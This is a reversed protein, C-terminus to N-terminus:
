TMPPAPLYTAHHWRQFPGVLAKCSGFEVATTHGKRPINRARGNCVRGKGNTCLDTGGTIAKFVENNKLVIVLEHEGIGISELAAFDIKDKM